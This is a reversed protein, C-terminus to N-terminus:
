AASQGSAARGALCELLSRYDEEARSRLESFRRRAAAKATALRLRDQHWAAIQARAATVFDASVPVVLGCDPSLDEELCGRGYVIVSAGAAMAELAANPQAENSYTTPFVFVDLGAFFRDKDAGYQPGVYTLRESLEAQAAAVAARDRDNEVPGALVGHVPIRDAHCARLVDLFLYLGKERTLNSLLGIRIEPAAPTPQQTAVLHAANSSVLGQWDGLYHESFRRQMDQCLFIHTTKAGAVGVLTSMLRSRRDIASFSHHHVFITHGAARALSVLVLTYLLGFGGDAPIYLCPDDRFGNYLIGVAARLVALVRRLHHTASRASLRSSVDYRRVSALADLDNAISETIKSLGHLPPPFAAAIVINRRRPMASAESDKRQQKM